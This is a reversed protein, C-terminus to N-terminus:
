SQTILKLAIEELEAVSISDTNIKGGEKEENDSVIKKARKHNRGTEEESSGSGDHGEEEEEEDDEEDEEMAGRKRKIKQKMRKERRKEREVKKDEADAKRMEAGVKKYFEKRKEEDLAMDTGTAGAVSALPALSNGEEDLVVRSGFPRHLNIKLKKNKLVRTGPMLVEEKTSKEVEKGEGHPKLAFDEEDLYDGLLDKEVVPPAECEQAYEPEEMAISSEFVGKKKTKLNTFRIKPTMPLGLSASFNEISLKSVDFIEKDKRKHISRLYTIFARQAVGQLEPHKVLLAALRRSVEQLKENNAKILKVPVRAEQLREIMKEESPTLFLLSKGQTYFRATRGVRHIYSAVDEPCDMQVVWDVAKEFDLGRALVDTCFLVSQRVIFESYVGMRKEQSMKGHLCKLPIGPQLKSFAEYVFKVQKKTSLFVLIRSNLHTKIFSWLMDLKKEVPVIMVTQMLSTPTATVAEEHVSIYEPDRLSLRALDKVKKTQTASFLLTQRHKPLQSIIPDLQGKFASDLVRDAEDLILIQLQSCDFNPTEDMHQLLRGPACVLINIENVKEKEVDVGERGGILLGASFNHFKGVKNLVNFTQAALERTPSIIICGVGDESSWRERHLKELIPIVFALTKGSGTRAAGLIDRGCLAHPIAARQVDTMDAYKAEKLGRKTKDSIPLQTFKRVGAYRSFVTGNKGDEFKGIKADKPLPGFSLPNSGSDPKQSEIWQNLLNIEEVENRRMEKKMGRTKKPRGM